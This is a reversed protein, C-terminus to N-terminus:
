HAKVSPTGPPSTKRGGGDKACDNSSRRALALLFRANNRPQAVNALPKCAHDAPFRHRVCVTLECNKCTNSNSLSLIERCRKVPCRPKKKKAPDCQESKQHKELILKEDYGNCATVEITM